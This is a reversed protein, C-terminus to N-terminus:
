RRELGTHYYVEPVPDHKKTQECRLRTIEGTLECLLLQALRLLCLQVGMQLVQQDSGLVGFLPCLPNHLLCFHQQLGVRTLGCVKVESM